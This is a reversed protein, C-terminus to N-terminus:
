IICKLSSHPTSKEGQLRRLVETLKDIGNRYWEEGLLVPFWIDIQRADVLNLLLM